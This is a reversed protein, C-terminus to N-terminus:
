FDQLKTLARLGAGVVVPNLSGDNFMIEELVNGMSGFQNGAFRRAVVNAVIGKPVACVLDHKAVTRVVSHFSVVEELGTANPTMVPPVQDDVVVKFGRKAGLVLGDREVTAIMFAWIYGATRVVRGVLNPDDVVRDDIV